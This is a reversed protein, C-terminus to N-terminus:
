SGPRRDWPSCVTRKAKDIAGAAMMGLRLEDSGKGRSVVLTIIEKVACVALIREVPSSENRIM